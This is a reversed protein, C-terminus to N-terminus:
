SAVRMGKHEECRKRGKVPSKECVLGNYLKVGCIVQSVTASQVTESSRRDLTKDKHQWCRRSGMPASRICPLGSKTTAECILSPGGSDKKNMGTCTEPKSKEEKLAIDRETPNLLFFFANVRMGKHDECRKRRAVPQNRCRVMDPLIVGCINETEECEREPSVECPIKKGPLVCSIRQGRHVTCRKRGQMPSTTCTTGDELLVGCISASDSDDVIDDHRDSVPQPRSRSLRVIPALFDSKEGAADSSIAREEALDDKKDKTRNGIIKQTVPLITQPLGPKRQNVIENNGLKQLLDHRAIGYSRLRSRISENQGLSAVFVDDVDVKLSQDHNTVAVGLGPFSGQVRYRGLLDKGKRFEEKDNAGILIKPALDRSISTYDPLTRRIEPADSIPKRLLMSRTFGQWKSFVADPKTRSYDDRNFM